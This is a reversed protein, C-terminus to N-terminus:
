MPSLVVSAPIDVAHFHGSSIHLVYDHDKPQNPFVGLNKIPIGSVKFDVLQKIAFRLDKVRRLILCINQMM